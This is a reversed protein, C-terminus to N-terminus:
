GPCRYRAVDTEIHTLTSRDSSLEYSSTRTFTEGESRAEATVTIKSDGQAIVEQVMGFSEYGDIQDLGFTLQGTSYPVDCNELDRDWRGQFQAPIVSQVQAVSGSNAPAEAETSAATQVSWDGVELKSGGYTIVALSKQEGPHFFDFRCQGTGTGACAAVETFGADYAMREVGYPGPDPGEAPVWGQEILRARADAYQMGSELDVLQNNAPSAPQPSSSAEPESPIPEPQAAPSEEAVATEAATSSAAPEATPESVDTTVCGILLPVLGLCAIATKGQKSWALLDLM